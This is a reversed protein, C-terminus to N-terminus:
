GCSTGSIIYLTGEKRYTWGFTQTIIDLIADPKDTNFTTTIKCNGLSKDTFEIEIGYIEKLSIAIGSLSTNDFVMRNTRWSYNNLINNDSPKIESSEKTCIGTEGANLVIRDNKEKKEVAVKGNEVSVIIEGPQGTEKVFFSTGLVEVYYEKTEVIFPRAKDPSVHFWGEGNLKVRRENKEFNEPYTISSEKKIAMESGDDFKLAKNQGEAVLTKETNYNTFWLVAATTLIIAIMAAVRLWIRKSSISFHRSRFIIWEKDTDIEPLGAVNGSSTWAEKLSNYLDKNEESEDIWKQILLSEEETANGTIHKVALELNINSDINNM